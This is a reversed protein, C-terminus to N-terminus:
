SLHFQLTNYSGTAGTEFPSNVNNGVAANEANRKAVREKITALILSETEEDENIDL